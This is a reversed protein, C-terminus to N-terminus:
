RAREDTIGREAGIAAALATLRADDALTELDALAKRRWNPQEGVTGPVNVQEVEGLADALDVLLLRASTRALFRFVAQVLADTLAAQDDAHDVPLLGARKLASVLAVRERARREHAATKMEESPFLGLEARVDLDRGRWYGALPAVDHTNAAVAAAPPYRGPPLFEGRRDHAFYLLRYSLMASLRMRERFGDPVTGLDEGIVLCKQRQSELAVIGFLDDVPYRVYAGDLPASGAPIWFLRELGMVHDIRLAGGHAMNARMVEIFPRYAAARLATPSYAPLGWNQGKLNLDDPPAGITIGQALQAQNTWAEAGNGDAALALDHYLGVAMGGDRAAAAAAALQGHALWQLYQFFEVRERHDGAFAAVEPSTPDRFGAPWDRWGAPGFREALAQFTSLRELSEGKAAQFRRFDAARDSAKAALHRVRFTQYLLELIPRKVAAVGEYDVLPLARLAALRAQFDTEALRRRAEVCDVLEAVAEIDIYWICLFQRSSPSYPSIIAPTEPFLSHLPNVGLADAGLAAGLRGMGALDTFDGIGWNRRSRLGYLQFVLAWRRGAPMPGGHCRQPVAIIPLDNGTIEGEEAELRFRHYGLAVPFPATFVRREVREGDITRADIPPLEAFRLRGKRPRAGDREFHWAIRRDAWSAPLTVDIQIRAGRRQRWVLVPQLARRWSATELREISDSVAHPTDADIGLAKLVSRKSAASIERREGWADVYDPLVGALEALRDLPVEETMPGDPRACRGAALRGVLGALPWERFGDRGRRRDDRSPPGVAARAWRRGARVLSQGGTSARPRRHVALVCRPRSRRGAPLARRRGQSAAAASRDRPVARGVAGPLLEAARPRGDRRSRVLRPGGTRLDCRRKSGPDTSARSRRPIAHFRAFERRRGERVKDALDPGFDCFFPFPQRAAWEEGMFLLPPSPALLLVAVAARVADADALTSIRDGFARNGVQDHNQLFPVFATAPLRKSPTGRPSGGRHPSAEGQYAFGEALTRGLHRAPADSYDGYYGADEGTLLVHLAHHADDNWQATYWRPRDDRDRELYRSANDDNELVLHVQRGTGVRRRVTEALEVLIDPTSNDRIAHVADLRLGDLHYEELWYLANEIFFDRVPRFGGDFNIAAGWPTHYRDTFFQPAYVHLYNGEPGFHNYVVDLFVMLGRGHAADVLAKLEEPRGYASQPAFLCVGDYGWNRRGPTDAVPMLEIATVGLTALHDLKDIVGAIVARDRSPASMCNTFCSKMGLAAVGIRMRGNSPMASRCSARAM